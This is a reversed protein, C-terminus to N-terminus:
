AIELTIPAHDSGRVDELIGAGRIRGRLSESAVCYDIRWGINKERAHFRYSWWTYHGGEKVFLRYTDIFGLSLFRTFWAREEDTFGAHNRNERPRAIDREEHAVNFDGCAVVPKGLGLVFREFAEDFRLKFDLRGLEEGANPFYANIVYLDDLELALLRGESDFEEVGLGKIVNVPHIRTLTLVGSYGRRRSTAMYAEYGSMQLDLPVSDAKVEQFMLIDYRGSRVLDLVGRGLAARLGNVNWSLLM